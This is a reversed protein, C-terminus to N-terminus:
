EKDRGQELVQHLDSKSYTGKSSILSYTDWDEEKVVKELPFRLKLSDLAQKTWATEDYVYNYDKALV